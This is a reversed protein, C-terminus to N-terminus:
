NAEIDAAKFVTKALRFGLRQYLRVAATNDTTVELHMQTLGIQFFGAAARALLITGLGQGRHDPSVGLNQIAGWRDVELGQVTAVATPREGHSEHVILWTAEPVFNARESIDRMLRLCGDAKGLCPFINSDLEHRFSDYKARAHDRILRESWPVLRYPSNLRPEPLQVKDLNLEMRFRKFYTLGV